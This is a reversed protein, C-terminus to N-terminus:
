RASIGIGLVIGHGYGVRVSSNGTLEPSLLRQFEYAAFLTVGSGVNAALRLWATGSPRDITNYVVRGDLDVPRCRTGVHGGLALSGFAAHFRFQVHGSPWFRGDGVQGQFGGELDMWSVLPLSMGADFQGVMWDDYLSLSGSLRFDAWYRYRVSIGLVGADPGPGGVSLGTEGYHLYAGHAALGWVPSDWGAALHAEHQDIAPRRSGNGQGSSGQFNRGAVHLYRYAADLRVHPDFRLDLGASVGAQWARWPHNDHIEGAAVTWPFASKLVPVASLGEAARGDQPNAEGARRFWSRAEAGLGQRASCWGLGLLADVNGPALRLAESYAVRAGPFDGDLFLSYALRLRLAPDDPRQNVLGQFLRRAEVRRGQGELADGLGLRSDFSGESIAAARLYADEAAVFEGARLRFYGRALHLPYDEPCLAIVEDLRAAAGSWQGAAAANRAHVMAVGCQDGPVEEAASLQPFTVLCAVVSLAVFALLADIIGCGATTRAFLM